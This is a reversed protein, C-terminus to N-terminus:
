NKSCNVATKYFPSAQHNNPITQAQMEEKVSRKEKIRKPINTFM